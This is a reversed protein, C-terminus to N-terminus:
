IDGIPMPQSVELVLKNEDGASLYHREPFNNTISEIFYERLTYKGGNVAMLIDYPSGNDRVIVKVSKRKGPKLMFSFEMHFPKGQCREVAHMGIEEVLLRLNLLQESTLEWKRLYEGIHHSLDMIEGKVSDVDYSCQGEMMERTILLFNDTSYWLRVVLANLIFALAYGAGVGLWLGEMGARAGAVMGLVPCLILLMTKVLLGYNRQEIYIYYNSYILTTGLFVLFLLFIRLCAAAEQLLPGDEVGFLLPILEGFVGAGLAVALSIGVTHAIGLDMTKQISGFSGESHYQCVMPQLCDVVGTYLALALVLINTIITVVIIHNEGWRAIVYSSLVVPLLSLFLTDVSHYFSLYVGRCIQRINLCWHFALRSKPSFLFFCQVLCSIGTGLVTALGIGMTGFIQCLLIDLVVNSVFAIASARLCIQEEGEQILFTYVFINFFVIPPLWKLGDYYGRAHAMYEPSIQWYSLLSDQFIHLLGVLVIGLGLSLIIGQSFLRNVEQRDERGQAYAAMMGLGDAILYSIFFLTTVLPFILSMAAVAEDGIFQGAVVNDTLMLIYSLTMSIMASVFVSRFRSSIVTKQRFASLFSM